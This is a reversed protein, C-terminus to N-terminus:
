TSEPVIEMSPDYVALRAKGSRKAAYLAIDAHRMILDADKRCKAESITVGISVHISVEAGEVRMPMSTAKMVKEAIALADALEHLGPLLIVFEDGGMRAVVDSSRCAGTLRDALQRLVMDGSAHGFEDNILKLDDVDLYLAAVAKGTRKNDAMLDDVRDYLDHRNLLQTLNDHTAQHLLSDRIMRNESVDTYTCVYSHPEGDKSRLLGISQEVWVRTGDGRFLLLEQALSSPHGSLIESRHRLDIADDGSDLLDPVRHSKFWEQERGVIKCFAPNVEIFRRDLDAVVMGIPSSDMALRFREESESLAESTTVEGHVDSLTFVGGIVAGVDDFLAGARIEVWRYGGPATMLRVRSTASQGGILRTAIVAMGLRDEPVVLETLRQGVIDSPEWGSLDGISLSVWLVKSDLDTRIVVDFENEIASRFREESARTAERDDVLDQVDALAVVAGTIDGEENRLNSANVVMFSVGGEATRIRLEVSSSGGELAVARATRAVDLDEPEVLDAERTGLIAGPKWGLMREISPSVWVITGDLDVEYLVDSASEALLRYHHESTALKDQLAILAEGDTWTSVRLDEGAFADSIARVSMTVWRYTDDSRRIRITRMNPGDDGSMNLDPAAPWDEPHTFQTIAKGILDSPLWGLFETISDSVWKIMGEGDGVIVVESINEVVTRYQVLMDTQDKADRWTLYVGDSSNTGRIDYHRETASSNPGFTADDLVLILDNEACGVILEFLESARLRPIRDLLRSGVLHDNTLDFDASAASNAAEIIFDVTTGRGDRVATLIVVPDFMMSILTQISRSRETTSSVVPVVTGTRDFHLASSLFDDDDDDDVTQSIVGSLTKSGGDKTMFRVATAADPSGGTQVVDKWPAAMARDDPHVLDTWEIGILDYPEWGLVDTVSPSVWDIKGESDETFVLDVSAETSEKLVVESGNVRDIGSQERPADEGRDAGQGRPVDVM